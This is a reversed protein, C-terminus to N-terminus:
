HSGPAFKAAFDLQQMLKVKGILLLFAGIFLSASFASLGDISPGVVIQELCASRYIAILSALCLSSGVSSCLHKLVVVREMRSRVGHPSDDLHKMAAAYDFGDPQSWKERSYWQFIRKDWESPLFAKENTRTIRLFTFLEQAFFGVVYGSGSIVLAGFLAIDDPVGFSATLVLIGGLVYFLDRGLFVGIARTMENM